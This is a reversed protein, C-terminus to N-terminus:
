NASFLKIVKGKASFDAAVPDKPLAKLGSVVSEANMVAGAVTTHTHPDGFLPEVAAEGLADYKEATIENLDIYGTHDRKAIEQTWGRYTSTQREIHGEVWIKRPVLSCLIPIAGHARADKIYQDLYHGFTYVAEHVHRVPNDIEKSEAGTGNISGRARDADDLPGSDNHGFQILIVDGPKVLKLTEAWHGESIYTRSSRGGIARNVVNIKLTDFYQAIEDGWGMQNHAGDGNGNRMTSDGVLFLNRLVPNAPSPLHLKAYVAPDTNAVTDPTMPTSAVPTATALKRLESAALLYGGIGYDYSSGPYYPTPEAGTQQIDGLRGDAYVHRLLGAWARSIVPLYTARDLIGNNVGYAMGFAILASGSNEPLPFGKPDLLSSHWLGAADGSTEQLTALAAAMERMQQVYFPRRPDDKPLYELTRAIGGLAWGEGRSWYIKKGNPGLKGIFTADRAYLHDQKDYLLDSARQWNLNLYDIYKHDGTAAYLRVWAPPAMFLADCWWWPIRPDTPRLTQLPIVADFDARLPAITSPDKKGSLLYLELYTQALDQDDAGPLHAVNEDQNPQRGRLQWHFQNAMGLMANSYKPDNLQSSTAMFGAYLVGSTWIQDWTPQARALEWDAVKRTAANIAAPTLAPSLATTPSADALPGPDLPSDGFHRSNDKDIGAQQTSNPKPYQQASLSLATAFLTCSLALRHLNM